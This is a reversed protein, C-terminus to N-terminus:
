SAKARAAAAAIRKGADTASRQFATGSIRQRALPRAAAAAPRFEAEALVQAEVDQRWISMVYVMSQPSLFSFLHAYERLARSRNIEHSTAHLLVKMGDHARCGFARLIVFLAAGSTDHAIQGCRVEDLGTIQTLLRTVEPRRNKSFLKMLALTFEETVVSIQEFTRKLPTPPITRGGFATLVALRSHEALDFFAPALLAKDFDPRGALSTAVRHDMAAARAIAALYPGRFKIASNAALARYITRSNIPFLKAITKQGLDPRAAIQACHKVNKTAIIKDLLAQSITRASMLYEEVGRDINELVINELVPSLFEARALLRAAHERATASASPFLRTALEEFQLLEAPLPKPRRSYADCAAVLLTNAREVGGTEILLRFTEYPQFGIM